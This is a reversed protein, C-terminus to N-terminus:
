RSSGVAMVWSFFPFHDELCVEMLVHELRLDELIKRLEKMLVLWGMADGMGDMPRVTYKGVHITSKWPKWTPCIIGNTGHITHSHYPDQKKKLPAQQNWVVLGQIAKAMDSLMSRSLELHGLFWGLHRACDDRPKMWNPNCERFSLTRGQFYAM